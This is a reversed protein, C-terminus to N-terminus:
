RPVSMWVPDMNPVIMAQFTQYRIQGAWCLIM